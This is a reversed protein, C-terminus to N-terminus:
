AATSFLPQSEVHARLSATILCAAEADRFAKLARATDDASGLAIRARIFIKTFRYRGEFRELTGNADAEYAAVKIRRQSAFNLFTLMLCSSASSVLLHEPTWIGPEGKFEVPTAVEMEPLGDARLTGRLGERWMVNAEYELVKSRMVTQRTEM